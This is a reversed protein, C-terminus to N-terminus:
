HDSRNINSHQFRQVNSHKVTRINSHKFTPIPRVEDTCGSGGHGDGMNLDKFTGFTQRKFTQIQIHAITRVEDTVEESHRPLCHLFVAGPAARGM